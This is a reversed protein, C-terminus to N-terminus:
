DNYGPSNILDQCRGGEFIFTSAQVAHVDELTRGKLRIILKKGSFEYSVVQLLGGSVKIVGKDSFFVEPYGTTDEKLRLQFSFPFRETTGKEYAEADGEFTLIVEIEDGDQVVDVGTIDLAPDLTNNPDECSFDGASGVLHISTAGEDVPPSSSTTGASTATAGPQGVCSTPANTYINVTLRMMEGLRATIPIGPEVDTPMTSFIRLIPAIPLSVGLLEVDFV